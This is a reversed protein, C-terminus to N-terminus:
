SLAVADTNSNATGTGTNGNFHLRWTGAKTVKVTAAIKGATDTTLTQKDVFATTGSAKFQLQVVRGAYTVLKPTPGWSARKLTGVVKLTAGATAPEPGINFTKEFTAQRLVSFVFTKKSTKGDTSKVTVLAQYKGAISNVMLSPSFTVVPEAKTALLANGEDERGVLDIQWSKQTCGSTSVVFTRTTDAAGVVFKAPTFGKITCTRPTAAEAGGVAVLSLAATAVLTLARRRRTMVPM